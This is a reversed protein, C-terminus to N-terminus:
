LPQETALVRGRFVSPVLTNDSPTCLTCAPRVWELDGKLGSPVATLIIVLIYFLAVVGAELRNPITCWGLVRQSANFAPSLILKARLWSVFSASSANKSHHRRRSLITNTLNRLIGLLLVAAWFSYVAYTYTHKSYGGYSASARQPRFLVNEPFAGEVPTSTM